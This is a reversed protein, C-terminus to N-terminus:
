ENGKPERNAALMVGDKWGINSIAEQFKSVVFSAFRGESMSTDVALTSEQTKPVLPIVWPFSQPSCTLAHRRSPSPHKPIRILQAAVDIGIDRLVM